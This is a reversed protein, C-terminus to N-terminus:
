QWKFSSDVDLSHFQDFGDATSNFQNCVVSNYDAPANILYLAPETLIHMDAYFLITFIDKFMHIGNLTYNYKLLFFVNHLM